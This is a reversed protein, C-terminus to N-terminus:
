LEPPECLRGIQRAEEETAKVECVLCLEHQVMNCADM